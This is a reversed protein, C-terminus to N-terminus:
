LIFSYLYNPEFWRGRRHSRLARVLQAIDGFGYLIIDREEPFTLAEALQNIAKIQKKIKNRELGTISM